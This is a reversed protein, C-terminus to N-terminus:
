KWNEWINGGPKVYKEPEVELGLKKLLEGPFVYNTPGQPVSKKGPKTQPDGDWNEWINGTTVPVRLDDQSKQDEATLLVKVEAYDREMDLVELFLPCPEEPIPIFNEAAFSALEKGVKEDLAKIKEPLEEAVKLGEEAIQIHMKQVQAMTDFADPITQELDELAKSLMHMEPSENGDLPGSICDRVLRTFSDVQSRLFKLKGGFDKPVDPLDDFNTEM